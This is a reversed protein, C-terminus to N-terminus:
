DNKGLTYPSKAGEQELWHWNKFETILEKVRNDGVKKGFHNKFSIKTQIVLTSYTFKDGHCFVDKLMHWLKDKDLEVIDFKNKATETRLEFNEAICPLGDIIEFAFPSPEINRCQQAEVISIEKNGDDKTVSLVTEAKNILETGVHGRANTDSKNQHLVTIIHINLEESWKLLKSAIMTAESEDNISNILDKIGDIVVMGLNPTNYILYEIAKLRESPELSRFGYVLLNIPVQQGLLKCIRKVAKQVHYRSQETDIYLVVKKNEPLCSRIMGWIEKSLAIFVLIVILFSKRSKAKGILVSFNGLTGLTATKNEQVQEWAIQPPPIEENPDIRLSEIKKLFISKKLL